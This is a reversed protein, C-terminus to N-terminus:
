RRPRRGPRAPVPELPGGAAADPHGVIEVDSREWYADLWERQLRRQETSAARPSATSLREGRDLLERPPVSRSTHYAAVKTLRVPLGAKARVQYVNKAIDPPISACSTYENETEVMHDVVVALTM